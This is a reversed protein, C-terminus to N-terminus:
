ENLGDSVGALLFVRSLRAASEIHRTAIDGLEVGRRLTPDDIALPVQGSADFLRDVLGTYDNFIPDVIPQNELSLEGDFGTVAARLPELQPIVEEIAPGFTREVDSGAAAIDDRFTEIAADTAAVAEDYTAVPLQVVDGFGLLYVGAFNRENQLAVIIGSPGASATALETQRRIERDHDATQVVELVAVVLLACIPVALAAALKLRIPIRRPV